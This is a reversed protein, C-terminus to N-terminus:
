RCFINQQAIRDAARDASGRRATAAAGDRKMQTYEAEINAQIPDNPPQPRELANLDLRLLEDRYKKQALREPSEQRAAAVAKENEM